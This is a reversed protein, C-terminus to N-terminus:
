RYDGHCTDCSKRLSGVATSVADYDNQLTAERADVAAQRMMESYECYTEDDWYEFDEQQIVHGIAAVIEAEHLVVESLKQFESKSSTAAALTKRAKELRAMLPPRGAVQNWLFDEERESKEDLRSGQIMADLMGERVRAENFSQDTGVKCNFGTRAFLDRATAAEDKWRVDGDYDAIVAFALAISSLADRCDNYGGGKFTAPSAIAATIDAKRDKIEDTLTGGSVMASWRFGSGADSVGKGGGNPPPETKKRMAFDPRPGELEAFADEFFSGSVLRDFRGAPPTSRRRIDPERSFCVAPPVAAIVAVVAIWAPALTFFPREIEDQGTTRKV